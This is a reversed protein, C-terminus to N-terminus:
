CNMQRKKGKCTRGRKGAGVGCAQPACAGDAPLARLVLADALRAQRLQGRPLLVEQPYGVPARAQRDSRRGEQQM